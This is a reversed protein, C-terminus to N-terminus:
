RSNADSVVLIEEALLQGGTNSLEVEVVDGRELNEPNYRRGEFEVITRTDYRVIVINDRGSSYGSSREIEVTRDRTDVYRVTGRLENSALDDDWSGGTGSSTGGATADYLVEIQEVLLRDGSQDVEAQIRDGRELDQPRYTRGEHEVVTRDDYYLVIEGDGNRLSTRYGAEGEVYIRQNLTDVREVTGRVDTVSTGYRDDSTSTGRGGGLIDGVGTSGCGSLLAAVVLATLFSTSQIRRM